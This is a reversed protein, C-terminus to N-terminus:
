GRTPHRLGQVSARYLRPVVKMNKRVAPELGSVVASIRRRAAGRTVKTELPVKGAHQCLKVASARRVPANRLLGTACALLLREVVVVADWGRGYWWQNDALALYALGGEEGLAALETLSPSGKLGGGRHVCGRWSEELHVSILRLGWSSPRGRVLAWTAFSGRCAGSCTLCDRTALTVELSGLIRKGPESGSSLRMMVSTAEWPPRTPTVAMTLAHQRSTPEARERSMRAPATRAPSSCFISGGQVALVDTVPREPKHLLM